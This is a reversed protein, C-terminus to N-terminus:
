KHDRYKILVLLLKADAYTEKVDVSHGILISLLFNGNHLLVTKLSLKSFDMFLRWNNPDYSINIFNMLSNVGVRAVLHEKIKKRRCSQYGNYFM